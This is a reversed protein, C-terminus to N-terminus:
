NIIITVLIIIDLIDLINDNNLDASTQGSELPDINELILNILLMVDLIDINNDNNLDGFLSDYSIPFSINVKKNYSIDNYENSNIDISLLLSDQNFNNNLSIVFPGSENLEAQGPDINPFSSTNTLLNVNNSSTTLQSVINTAEGWDEQNYLVIFLHLEDGPSLTGDSNNIIEYDYGALEIKPYLETSLAQLIDVRGSGLRGNLYNESNISYIIPDATAVIMTGIHESTWEPRFAQLLGACSAVIPTAM